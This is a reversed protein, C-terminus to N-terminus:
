KNPPYYVMYHTYNLEGCQSKGFLQGCPDIVYNEYFIVSPDLQVSTCGDICDNESPDITASFTTIDCVDQLDMKSYQGAILNSKNVPLMDCNNIGYYYKGKNLLYKADYSNSYCKKNIIKSQFTSLAKKRKIYDSQFMNPRINGFTPKAPITKFAHAM